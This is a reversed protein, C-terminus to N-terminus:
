GQLSASTFIVILTLRRPKVTTCKIVFVWTTDDSTKIFARSTIADSIVTRGVTEMEQMGHKNINAINQSLIHKSDLQEKLRRFFDQYAEETSGKVRQIQCFVKRESAIPIANFSITSGNGALRQIIAKKLQYQVLSDLCNLVYPLEGLPRKAKVGNPLLARKSQLSGNPQFKTLNKSNEATFDTISRPGLFAKNPRLVEFM